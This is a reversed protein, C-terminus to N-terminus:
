VTYSSIKEVVTEHEYNGIGCLLDGDEGVVHIGVIDHEDNPDGTGRMTILVRRTSDKFKIEEQITVM